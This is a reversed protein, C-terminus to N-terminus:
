QKYKIGIGLIYGNGPNLDYVKHNDNNILTYKKNFYYGATFNLFWKEDVNRQYEFASTMQSLSVKTANENLKNPSDLNYFSGNFSNTLSFNNRINNSYSIESSPFGLLINSKDTPKYNISLTPLFTPYGFSTARAIGMNLGARSSLQYRIELSGLIIIAAISFNQQFNATPTVTFNLKTVKSIDTLFEFKNQLHNFQNLNEFSPYSGLEYNIKLHSYELTTTVKNKANIEKSVNIGINSQNFNIKDSSETKVNMNVSFKEQAKMNCFSITCLSCILLRIKM